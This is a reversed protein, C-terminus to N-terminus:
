HPPFSTEARERRRLTWREGEEAEIEQETYLVPLPIHTLACICFHARSLLDLLQTWSV